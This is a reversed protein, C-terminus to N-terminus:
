DFISEYPTDAWIKRGKISIEDPLQQINGGKKVFVALAKAIDEQTINASIKDKKKIYSQTKRFAPNGPQQFKKNM